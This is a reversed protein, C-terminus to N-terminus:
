RNALASPCTDAFRWDSRQPVYKLRLRLAGPPIWARLVRRDRGEEPATRATERPRPDPTRGASRWRTVRSLPDQSRRPGPLGQGSRAVSSTSFVGDLQEGRGAARHLGDPFFRAQAQPRGEARATTGPSRLSNPAGRHPGSPLSLDPRPVPLPMCLGRPTGAGGLAGKRGPTAPHPGAASLGSNEAHTFHKVPASTLYHLSVPSPSAKSAASGPELRTPM